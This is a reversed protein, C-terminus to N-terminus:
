KEKDFDVFTKRQPKQPTLDETPQVVKGDIREFVMELSKTDGKEAKAILAEIMNEVRKPDEKLVKKLRTLLSAGRRNKPQNEKSFTNGDSGNINKHGGPM